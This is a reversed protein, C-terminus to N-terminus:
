VSRKPKNVRKKRVASGAGLDSDGSPSGLLVLRKKQAALRAAGSVDGPYSLLAALFLTQVADSLASPNDGLGPALFGLAALLREDEPYVDLRV